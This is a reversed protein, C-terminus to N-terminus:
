RGGELPAALSDPPLASGGDLVAVVKGVVLREEVEGDRYDNLDGQTVYRRDGSEERRIGVVRHATLHDGNKFVIVDGLEIGEVAHSVRVRTGRRITPEMSRGYVVMESVRGTERWVDLIAEVVPAPANLRVL